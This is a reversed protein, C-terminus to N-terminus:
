IANGDKDVKFAYKCNSFKRVGDFEPICKDEFAKYFLCERGKCTCNKCNKDLILEALHFYDKNDEYAKDLEALVRKKYTEIEYRDSVFVEVNKLSNNFSKAASPTLRKLMGSEDGAILEGTKKDIKGFISKGILTIATRLDKKETKNFLDGNVMKEVMQMIKLTAIVGQKEKTNLYDKM